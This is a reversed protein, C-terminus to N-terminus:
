GKYQQRHDKKLLSYVELDVFGREHLEGQREIGEFTFGLRQAVQQSKHNGIATKIQIRNLQLEDFILEILKQVSLTMIGLNQYSESLWYGVETKKNEFDTDKMGVLGVLKQQYLITFTYEDAPMEMYNEVFTHTYSIDRTEDVFPLWQSLYSREKDIIEFISKVDEFGIEKLRIDSNVFLEKM